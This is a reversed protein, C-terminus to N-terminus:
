TAEFIYHRKKFSGKEKRKKTQVQTVEKKSIGSVLLLCNIVEQVDAIEEILNDRTDSYSVEIAEEVIKNRLSAMYKDKPLVEYILMRGESEIIEVIKDRVLKNM